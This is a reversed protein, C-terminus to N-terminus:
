RIKENQGAPVINIYDVALPQCVAMDAWNRCASLSVGCKRVSGASCAEDDLLGDLSNKVAKLAHVGESHRGTMEQLRVIAGTLQTRVDLLDERLDSLGTEQGPEKYEAADEGAIEKMRFCIQCIRCISDRIESILDAMDGLATEMRIRHHGQKLYFVYPVGTGDSLVDERWTRGYIFHYNEMEAFPIAGDIMIKRCVGTGKVYNQCDYLSIYYYGAEEVDFEWEIWQGAEKWSEGDIFTSALEAALAQDGREPELGPRKSSTRAAHEAEIHITQGKAAKIGVADWFTKAQAYERVPKENRLVIQHILVPEKIALLSIRHEGETLYVSLPEDLYGTGDSCDSVIWEPAEAEAKWVRGFSVQSMERYPLVGDILISREIDAGSGPLPYYELAMHYFGETEVNIVFETLSGAGTYISDGSIGEYDTYLVPTVWADNEEYGVCAEVGARIEEEPYAAQFSAAYEKFGPVSSDAFSVDEFIDYGEPAMDSNVQIFSAIGSSSFFKILLGALLILTLMGKGWDVYRIRQRGATRHIAEAMVACCGRASCETTLATELGTM